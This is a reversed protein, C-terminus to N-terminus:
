GVNVCITHRSINNSDIACAHTSGASIYIVKTLIAICHPILTNQIANDQFDINENASNSNCIISELKISKLTYKDDLIFLMDM